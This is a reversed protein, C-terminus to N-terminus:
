LSTNKWCRLTSKAKIYKRPFCIVFIWVSKVTPNTQVAESMLFRTSIKLICLSSGVKKQIKVRSFRYFILFKTHPFILTVIWFDFTKECHFWDVTSGGFSESKRRWIKLRTRTRLCHFTKYLFMTLNEKYVYGSHSDNSKYHTSIRTRM